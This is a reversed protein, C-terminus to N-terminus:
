NMMFVQLFRQKRLWLSNNQNGGRVDSLKDRKKECEGEKSVVDQLLKELEM